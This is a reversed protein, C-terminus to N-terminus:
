LPLTTKPLKEVNGRGKLDLHNQNAFGVLISVNANKLDLVAIYFRQLTIKGEIYGSWLIDCLEAIVRHM